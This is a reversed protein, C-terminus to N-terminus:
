RLTKLTRVADSVLREAGGDHLARLREMYHRYDKYVRREPPLKKLEFDCLRTIAFRAAALRLDDPLAAKEARSLSRERVYGRLFARTRARDFHGSPGGKQEVSPMWCWANIGVALEWTFRETSAMEFDIVGCLKGDKFKVNDIFLDGHVTGRPLHDLERGKQRALEKTLTEIDPALKASLRHRALASDLRALKEELAPVDFANKRTREFTRTALHMRAAFKALQRVHTPRVEFTALDRGDLYEFLSVFRGRVSWPTFTGKAVNELLHPVPLEADALHGLLRREFIMDDIRKRETIRLFYRRGAVQVWYSTNISGEPIGGFDEVPELHYLSLISTVEDRSLVVHM